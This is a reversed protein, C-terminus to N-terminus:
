RHASESVVSANSVAANGVANHLQSVELCGTLLFRLLAAMLSPDFAAM